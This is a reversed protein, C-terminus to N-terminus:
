FVTPKQWRSETVSDSWTPRSRATSFRQPYNAVSRPSWPQSM